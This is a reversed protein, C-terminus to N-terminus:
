TNDPPSRRSSRLLNKLEHLRQRSWPPGLRHVMRHCNACLVAFDREPDVAKVLGKNESVPVVHHLEIYGAGLTGYTEQFDFDCVCCRYGLRQKVTKLIRADREVRIHSRYKAYNEFFVEDTGAWAFEEFSHQELQPKCLGDLYEGVRQTADDGDARMMKCLRSKLWDRSERRMWLDLFDHPVKIADVADLLQQAAKPKRARFVERSVPMGLRTCIWALDNMLHWLPMWGSDAKSPHVPQILLKFERIVEIAPIPRAPDTGRDILFCVALLCTPKFYRAERHRHSEVSELLSRWTPVVGMEM